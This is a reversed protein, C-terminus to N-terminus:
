QLEQRRLVISLRGYTSPCGSTLGFVVSQIDFSLQDYTSPCDTTHWRIVARPVSILNQKM